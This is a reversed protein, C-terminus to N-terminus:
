KQFHQPSCLVLAMGIAQFGLKSAVLDDLHEVLLDGKSGGSVMPDKSRVAYGDCLEGIEDNSGEADFVTVTQKLVVPVETGHDLM